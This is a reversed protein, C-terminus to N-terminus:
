TCVRGGETQAPTVHRQCGQLRQLGADGGASGLGHQARGAGAQSGTPTRNHAGAGRARGAYELALWGRHGVADHTGGHTPRKQENSVPRADALHVKPGQNPAQLDISPGHYAIGRRCCVRHAFCLRQPGRGDVGGGEGWCVRKDSLVVQDESDKDRAGEGEGEGRTDPRPWYRGSQAPDVGCRTQQRWRAWRGQLIQHGRCWGRGAPRLCSAPTPLTRQM